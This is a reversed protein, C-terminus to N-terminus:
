FPRWLPQLPQEFDIQQARPPAFVANAAMGDLITHEIQTEGPTCIQVHAMMAWEQGGPVLEAPTRVVLPPFM